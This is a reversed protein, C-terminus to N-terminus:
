FLITYFTARALGHKKMINQEVLNTLDRNATVRTSKTINMYKKVKMGGEFEEPLSALM